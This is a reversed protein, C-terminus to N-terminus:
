KAVVFPIHQTATNMKVVLTYAGNVLGDASLNITNEGDNLATPALNLVTMGLANVVSITAVGTQATFRVTASGFIPNPTISFTSTEDNGEDVGTTSLLWDTAREMIQQYDQQQWFANMGTTLYVIKKGNNNCKVGGISTEDDDYQLIPTSKSGALPRIIDTFPILYGQLLNAQVAIADTIDDNAIGQISYPTYNTGNNRAQRRIYEVGLVDKYFSKAAATRYAANAGPDYSSWAAQYASIFVKKGANLAKNITTLVPWTGASYDLPNSGLDMYIVDFNDAPFTNLVDANFPLLAVNNGYKETSGLGAYQILSGNGGIGYVAFKTNDSLAYMPVSVGRGVKNPVVPIGEVNATVFAAKEPSTYTLTAEISGNAPITVIAPAIKVSWGEPLGAGISLRAEFPESSTNSVTVKQETTGKSKASIYSGTSTLALGVIPQLSTLKADIVNLVEHSSAASGGMAVTGVLTVQDAKVNIPVTYTYTYSYSAGSTVSAPIVNATGWTGGLMNRVVHRHQYGKLVAPLKYFPNDEYGARGALYNNQDYGSGTGSVSDEVVYLNLRMDGNLAAFFKATVKASMVRTAPDFTIDSIEVDAKAPAQLEAQVKAPWQERYIAFSTSPPYVKRNIGGAPFGPIFAGLSDMDKTQMDDGQHVKVGIVRGPNGAILTDMIYAGDVCWGCWAGTYQEILVRKEQATANFSLAFIFAMGLLFTTSFRKM